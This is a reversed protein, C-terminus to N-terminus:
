WVKVQAVGRSTTPMASAPTPSSRSSALSVSSGAGGPAIAAQWDVVRIVTATSEGSVISAAAAAPM